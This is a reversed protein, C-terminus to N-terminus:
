WLVADGSGLGASDLDDLSPAAVEEEEYTWTGEAAPSAAGTTGAPRVGSLGRDGPCVLPGAMASSLSLSLSLLSSAFSVYSLGSSNLSLSSASRAASLWMEM